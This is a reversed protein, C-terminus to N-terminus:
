ASLVMVVVLWGFVSLAAASLLVHMREGRGAGPAPSRRAERWQTVFFAVAFALMVLTVVRVIPSPGFGVIGSGIQYFAIVGWPVIGIAAGFCMPLMAHGSEVRVRGQLMTFLTMASTAAYVLVLTGVETIGNLVAVLFVVISSTFSYEILRITRSAWGATSAPGRGLLVPLLRVAAVLLLLVVAAAGPDIRAIAAREGALSAVIPFTRSDHTLLIVAIVVAELTLVVAAVSRIVAAYRDDRALEM